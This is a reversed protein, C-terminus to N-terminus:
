KEYFVSDECLTRECLGADFFMGEFSLDADIQPWHIGDYTLYFDRRQDQTASSLRKWRSFPYNATLGDTTRAYVHTDDVWVELIKHKTM